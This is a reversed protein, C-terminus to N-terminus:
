YHPNRSYRDQFDLDKRQSEETRIKSILSAKALERDMKSVRQKNTGNKEWLRKAENKTDSDTLRKKKM